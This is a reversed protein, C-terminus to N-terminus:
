PVVGLAAGVRAHLAGLDEPCLQLVRNYNRASESAITHRGEYPGQLLGRKEAYADYYHEKPHCAERLERWSWKSPLDRMGALAWVEVEQWANEALFRRDGNGEALYKRAKAELADLRKRRHEDCDRDIVLLFLRVMGRYRALIPELREWKLAQDVGGLLPDACIQVRAKVGHAKMMATVIPVVVYQDKRFDEPIVLVNVAM